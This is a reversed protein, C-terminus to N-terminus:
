PSAISPAGFCAALWNFRSTPLRRRAFLRLRSLTARRRLEEAAWTSVFSARSVRSRVLGSSCCVAVDSTSWTM